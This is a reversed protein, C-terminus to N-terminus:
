VIEAQEEPYLISEFALVYAADVQCKKWLCLATYLVCYAVLTGFFMVLPDVPVPIGMLGLVLDLYGVVSIVAGLLYYWWFSLDLKVLQWKHGRLLQASVFHARVAGIPQELVLYMSMRFSYSVFIYVPLFVAMVLVLLTVSASSMLELPLLDLNITGDAAFLNPDSLIPAMQEAFAAGQKTFSFILGALNVASMLLALAVLFEFALWALIRTFRRFGEGLDRRQPTRGRVMAMMAFLFGASWFPGFLLNVLNLVEQVTQLVSRLGMGGLGGTGGIQKSLYLSLGNSGISLAAIVGCYLLVLGRTGDRHEGAIATGRDKLQRINYISM